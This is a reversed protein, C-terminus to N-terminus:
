ERYNTVKRCDRHPPIRREEERGREEQRVEADQPGARRGGAALQLGGSAARTDELQGGESSSSTLQRRGPGAVGQAAGMSDEEQQNHSGTDQDEQEEVAMIVVLRQVGVVMTSPEKPKYTPESDEGQRRPRMQVKCSRVTGEDDPLVETVRCLRYAPRAFRSAYKLLCVDGVRLNRTKLKWKTRPVLEAFSSRMWEAWWERAVEEQASIMKLATTDQEEVEPERFDQPAESAQGLLLDAPCIAHYSDETSMRVALPRKNLIEGVRHLAADAEHFDLMTNRQLVHALTRRASRITVEAAGNRWSCGKPTFIWETKRVSGSRRVEEWDLVRAGATIQTGHDAYCRQPNGYVATFKGYATLFNRTDYGPVAYLAAARSALCSAVLSWCKVKRRGKAVDKVEFPGFLDIATYQFPRAVKLKEEPLQAMLQSQTKRSAAKCFNCDKIVKRALQGGRPIWLSKRARALVDKPDRRHDERHADQMVVRALTESCMVVPLEEVGLLRALDAKRARGRVIVRGGSREAGLSLLVGKELAEVASKSSALVQLKRAAERDRPSPAMPVLDRSGTSAARLYRALAGQARSWSSSNELSERAVELLKLSVDKAKGSVEESSEQVQKGHVGSAAATSGWCDLRRERVAEKPATGPPSRQLPWDDRPSKLFIPGEQWMSGPGLEQIRVGTRTGVDAPNSNGGVHTFEEMTEVLKELEKRTHSIEAVRNAFYPRLEAGSRRLAAVCSASDTSQTVRGCQFSVARVALSTLRSLIVMGQLEARPVTGGQRPTVRVKSLLIGTHVDERTPWVVYLVACIANTSADSFGALTPNGVAGTPRVSRKLNVGEEQALSLLWSVWQERELRPLDQDWSGAEEGYLRRLLLKGPLIAPGLYGLPDFTGMTFSLAMRRTFKREGRRIAELFYQSLIVEEKQRPRGKLHLKMPVKLVFEDQALRYDMGLVKGGLPEAKEPRSDGTRVMFKPKLGFKGLMTPLTGSYSGDELEQGMMRSVDEKSGGAVGDDVYVKDQLQEAAMSDLEQGAEAAKKKAVELMLGAAKDGFTARTYAYDQWQDSVSERWVFRRLHMDKPCLNIAQYAKHLDYLMAEEVSRFHILVDGLQAM